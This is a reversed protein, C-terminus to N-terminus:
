RLDEIESDNQPSKATILKALRQLMFEGQQTHLFQSAVAPTIKVNSLLIKRLKQLKDSSIYQQYVALKDDIIGTKTYTELSMVPIPIELISYAAYIQEAAMVSNSMGFTPLLM